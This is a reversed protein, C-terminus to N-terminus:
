LYGQQILVNGGLGDIIVPDGERASDQLGTVCVLAPIHLGRSLIATHSTPGGEQTLIGRVRKLDLEMVDAPSIDEAALIIDQASTGISSGGSLRDRIRLGVVRIDQARDRLYPDDMGHFLDCLQDITKQLAWAACIKEQAIRKAAAEELKPDGTM